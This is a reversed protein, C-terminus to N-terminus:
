KIVGLSVGAKLVEFFGRSVLAEEFASIVSLPDNPINGELLTHLLTQMDEPSKQVLAGMLEVATQPAKFIDPNRGVLEFLM